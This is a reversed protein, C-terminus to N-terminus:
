VQTSQVYKSCETSLPSLLLLLLITVRFYDNNDEFTDTLAPISGEDINLLRM